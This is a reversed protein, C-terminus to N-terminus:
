HPTRGLLSNWMEETNHVLTRFHHKSGGDDTVVIEVASGWRAEGWKGEGWGMTATTSQGASTVCRDARDLKLHKHTDCIDRILAFDPYRRGIEARFNKLSSQGFVKEPETESFSHWYYDAMHSLNTAVAMARHIETERELWDEISPILHKHFFEHARTATTM